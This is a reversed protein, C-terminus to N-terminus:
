LICWKLTDPVRVTIDRKMYGKDGILLQLTLVRHISFLDLHVRFATLDQLDNDGAFLCVRYPDNEAFSDVIGLALQSRRAIAQSVGPVYQTTLDDVFLANLLNLRINGLLPDLVHVCPKATLTGKWM